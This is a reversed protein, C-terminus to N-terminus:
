GDDPQLLFVTPPPRQQLRLSSAGVVMAASPEAAEPWTSRADCLLPGGNAPRESLWPLSLCGRGVHLSPLASRSGSGTRNSSRRRFLFRGVLHRADVELVLAEEVLNLQTPRSTTRSRRLVKVSIRPILLLGRLHRSSASSSPRPHPARQPTWRQTSSLVRRPSLALTSLLRGALRP